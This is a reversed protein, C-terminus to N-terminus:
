GTDELGFEDREQQRRRASERARREETIMEHEATSIIEIVDEARFRERVIQEAARRDVCDPLRLHVQFRAM